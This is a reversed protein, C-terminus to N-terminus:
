STDIDELDRFVQSTARSLADPLLEPLLSAKAWMRFGSLEEAPMVLSFLAWPYRRGTSSSGALHVTRPVADALTPLAAQRANPMVTDISCGARRRVASTSDWLEVPVFTLVVFVGLRKELVHGWGDAYGWAGSYECALRSAQAARQDLRIPQALVDSLFVAPVGIRIRPQSLLQPSVGWDRTVPCDAPKM